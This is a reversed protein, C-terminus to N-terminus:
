DRIDIIPMATLVGEQQLLQLQQLGEMVSQLRRPELARLQPLVADILRINQPAIQALTLSLRKNDSEGDQLDSMLMEIFSKPQPLVRIEYEEVGAEQAVFQIADQLGGIKDVLGLALAQQGTFVRGGALEDINKTLKDGRITVVHNKFVGYIEDMWSQLLTRQEDTFLDGSDLMGANAGRRIPTWNIGVRDWMKSTALKGAVVGISGTITSSDAFITKAGCAVYYGGSGAVNGMSVVLPKKAQVRKTANLIIESAVASGGPSDVRLVVCKVMDDAAAEDLAKAIPTSYAVGGVSFPFGTPDSAGPLIPGEVYVIAVAAKSSKKKQPGSLLEGYFKLVGFPSSLDIDGAKKKGYKKDFVLEEGYKSKLEAEFDQRFQVEDIIGAEKAAEASYVGRDIWERVKAADVKRGSSILNVQTEFIGDMLWDLNEQAAPSPSKRMFMEAASKYDGCTTFDPEVGVLDLLGRLHMSEGYMGNIWIDGTPVVCIRNAGSLLVYSRMSVNDAHAVVDKGSAKIEELVQRVEEIQSVGLSTSSVLMIVAKVSDDSKAKKLRTLLSHFSEGVSGFPFDEAVPAETTEGGFTFVAAVPKAPPKDAGQASLGSWPLCVLGFLVPVVYRRLM